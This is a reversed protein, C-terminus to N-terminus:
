LDYVKRDELLLLNEGEVYGEEEALDVMGEKLRLNGHSPIVIQPRIMHLLDRLDERSAHGSVHIDKYIKCRTKELKAELVRRQEINTEIPIVESSFIVKDEETLKYPTKGDAIKSLVANPEGQHGTCIVIYEEKNANAKSLARRVEQPTEAVEVGKDKFDIIGTNKAAKAYKVISRGVFLPKRGLENCLEIISKLRAIHSAYTTIVFGKTEAIDTEIFVDRLMEKVVIESLTKRRMNSRLSDIVAVKIGKTDRLQKLREYNTKQGLAPRNDFKFDNCYLLVGEPSHVAVMASQPTSHTTNIFEIELNDNLKISSNVNIKIFKNRMHVKRTSTKMLVKLVEITFPTGYVPCNFQSALYQIAGLHDLHCHSIVIGRIKDKKDAIMDPNPLIDKEILEEVSMQDVEDNYKVLNNMQLGMDLILMDNEFELACMNRGAENYGGLTYLKM